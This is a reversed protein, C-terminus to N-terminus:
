VFFEKFLAIYTKWSLSFSKALYTKLSIDNSLIAFIGAIVILNGIYIIAYSFLYGSALIDPQKVKLTDATMIMHMGLSFGILFIYWSFLNLDSLSSRLLPMIFILLMTYLPVFYPSLEIFFNTKSTTVSGGGDSVHFSSIHGGCMWTALVHVSEHALTYIYNPKFFLIHTLMYAIIGWLFFSIKTSLFGIGSLELYFVKSFAWVVPLVFLGILCKIYKAM